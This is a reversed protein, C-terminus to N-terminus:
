SLGTLSALAHALKFMRDALMWGVALTGASLAMARTVRPRTWVQRKRWARFRAPLALARLSRTLRDRTLRGELRLALSAVAAGGALLPGGLRVLAFAISAGVLASAMRAARARPTAAPRLAVALVLALLGALALRLPLLLSARAYPLEVRISQGAPIWYRDHVREVGTRPLELRARAPAAARQDDDDWRVARELHAPKHWSAAGAFTQEAVAARLAGYENMAPLDLRWRLAAAPLDPAPLDMAALGALALPARESELVVEVTFPELREGGRSRKLPLLLRGREDQSPTVPVGDLLASRVGTAAPLALALSPRLTNRLTIRLETLLKGEPSLVTLADIRDIAGEALEEEPLREVRLQLEPSPRHYRYAKLIPSVASAAVEGPLQRADVAALDRRAAEDLRLKGPVEVALWGHERLAGLCHPLVVSFAGAAPTETIKKRLRLSIEYSGQVPFATEGRLVTEEGRRELTYRFGSEGDASVVELGPPVAVDFSQTPAYLINYRAVTFLEMSPEGVSLLTSTEAYVRAAQADDRGLDRFGVLRIETTPELTASVTTGGKGPRVEARVAGDFRPALGETPLRVTLSTGPTRPARFAYEMSGRPARPAVLLSLEIPVVGRRDTIWVHYGPRRTLGIPEGDATASVLATDDGALPVTKPGDGALTVHLKVRLSLVGRTVEGDYAAAGLVVRPGGDDAQVRRRAGLRRALDTYQGLPMEVTAGEAAGAETLPRVITGGGPLQEIVLPRDGGPSAAEDGDSPEPANGSMIEDFAKDSETKGADGAEAGAEAEDAPGADADGEGEGEVQSRQAAAADDDEAAARGPWLAATAALLLLARARRMPGLDARM